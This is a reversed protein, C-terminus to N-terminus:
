AGSEEESISSCEKVDVGGGHVGGGHVGDGVSRARWSMTACPKVPMEVWGFGASNVASTGLAADVGGRAAPEAVGGRVGDFGRRARAGGSM